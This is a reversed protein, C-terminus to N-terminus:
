DTSTFEERFERWIYNVIGVGGDVGVFLGMEPGGGGPEERSTDKDGGVGGVDCEPEKRCLFTFCLKGNAPFPM